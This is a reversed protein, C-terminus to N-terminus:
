QGNPVRFAKAMIDTLAKVAALLERNTDGEKELQETARDARAVERKHTVGPVLDGRILATIVAALVLSAFVWGGAGLVESPLGLPM